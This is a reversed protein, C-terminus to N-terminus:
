AHSRLIRECEAVDGATGRIGDLAAQLRRALVSADREVWHRQHGTHLSVNAVYFGESLFVVATGMAGTLNTHTVIM